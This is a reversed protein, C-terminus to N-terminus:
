NILPSFYSSIKGTYYQGLIKYFENTPHLKDVFIGKDINMKNVVSHSNDIYNIGYKDCISKIKNCLDILTYGAENVTGYRYNTESTGVDCANIPLIFVLNIKPNNNYIKDICYNVAGCVTKNTPYLDNVDGLQYNNGYDNTGFAITVLNYRNFDYDHGQKCYFDVISMATVEGNPYIFGAGTKGGYTVNLGLANAIATPYPLTARGSPLYGYTISDGLALYNNNNSNAHGVRIWDYIVNNNTVDLFRYYIGSASHENRKDSFCIQMVYDDNNLTISKFALMNYIGYNDGNPANLLKHEANEDCQIYYLGKHLTNLDVDVETNTIMGREPLSYLEKSITIQNTIIMKKLDDLNMDEGSVYTCQIKYFPYETDIKATDNGAYVNKIFNKDNDYYVIYIKVSQSTNAVITSELGKLSQNFNAMRGFDKHEGVTDEIGNNPDIWGKKWRTENYDFTLIGSSIAYNLTNITQSENVISEKLENVAAGTAAADAAVGEEELSKDTKIGNSNFPRGEKWSGDKYYYWYDTKYGSENGAYVYVKDTDKMEAATEVVAISGFKDQFDKMKSDIIDANNNLERIDVIDEPDPKVLGLNKTKTSM